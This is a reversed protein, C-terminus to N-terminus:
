RLNKASKMKTKMKKYQNEMENENLLQEDNISSYNDDETKSNKYL